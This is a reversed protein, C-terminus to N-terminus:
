PAPATYEIEQIVSEEPPLIAEITEVPLEKKVVDEKINPMANLRNKYPKKSM